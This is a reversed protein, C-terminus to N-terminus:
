DDETKEHQAKIQKKLLKTGKHHKLHKKAQGINYRSEEHKILTMSKRAQHKKGCPM